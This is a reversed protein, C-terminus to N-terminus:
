KLEEEVIRQLSAALPDMTAVIAPRAYPQAKMGPWGPTFTPTYPRLVYIEYRERGPFDKCTRKGREGTGWEVFPAYPKPNTYAISARLVSVGAAARLAGTRVPTRSYTEIRLREAVLSTIVKDLAPGITLTKNLLAKAKPIGQITVKM